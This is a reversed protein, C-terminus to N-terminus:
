DEIGIEFDSPNNYIEGATVTIIEDTSIKHVTFKHDPTVEVFKNDELQIKILGLESCKKKLVGNIDELEWSEKDFNYSYIQYQPNEFTKEFENDKNKNFM